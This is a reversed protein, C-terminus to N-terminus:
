FGLNRKLKLRRETLAILPPSNQVYDAFWDFASQNWAEKHDGTNWWEVLLYQNVSPSRVGFDVSYGPRLDGSDTISGSSFHIHLELTEQAHHCTARLAVSDGFTLTWEPRLQQILDQFKAFAKARKERLERVERSPGFLGM